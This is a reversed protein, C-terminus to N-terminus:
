LEVDKSESQSSQWCGEMVRQTKLAIEGWSPDLEGSLVIRAFNRFLNTEQSNAASNAYESVAVRRTHEQMQFDCGNQDFVAQSVEFAVESGFYPLVFDPVSLNGKTGSVHAWQQHEALFACYFSSSVGGPFFLEGSFEMPVKEPSDARGHQALLRGTVREPMQYQMVWLAFRINYWGLDGLCGMPELSSSVRINGDRFEQPALFSFQTAIRKVDGISSSDNLVDRIADQRKSHMFMVGDMFQVNNKGCIDLMEQLDAASLGCPKECMVHKGAEAARLVWEKRLGTPLPIYVADVDDAAILEEYSGIARPPNRVPGTFSCDDIFQQARGADRSAVATVESNEANAIAKWNKQAISATSLIGWRCINDTM